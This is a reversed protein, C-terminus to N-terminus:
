SDFKGSESKGYEEKEAKRLENICEDVEKQTIYGKEIAEEAYLWNLPEGTVPHKGAHKRVGRCCASAGTIGTERKVHEMSAFIRDLEICYVRRAKGSDVKSYQEFHGYRPHNEGSFDAHNESMKKRTEETHKKGYMPNNEGVMKGFKSERMKQKSEETHVHGYFPNNEGYKNEDFIPNYGLRAVRDKASQSMKQRSEETPTWGNMGDGGDTENYGYEPDRYRRCNSQYLAILSKEMKMAESKSLGDAFIIHEFGDWGYKRIANWFVPQKKKYGNGNDWRAEPRKSTVGVYVKNNTKNTHMYVCWKKEKVADKVVEDHLVEEM